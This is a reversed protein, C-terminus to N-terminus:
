LLYLQLSMSTHIIPDLALKFFFGLCMHRKQSFRDLSCLNRQSDMEQEFLSVTKRELKCLISIGSVKHCDISGELFSYRERGAIQAVDPITLPTRLKHLTMVYHFMVFIEVQSAYVIITLM